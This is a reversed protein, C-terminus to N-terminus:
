FMIRSAIRDITSAIRDNPPVNSWEGAGISKKEGQEQERDITTSAAPSTGSELGRIWMCVYMISELGDYISVPRARSIFHTSRPNIEIQLDFTTSAAPSTEGELDSYELFLFEENIIPNGLLLATM